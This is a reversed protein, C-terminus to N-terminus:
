EPTLNSYYGGMHEWGPGAGEMMGPGMMGPGMMGTGWMSHM